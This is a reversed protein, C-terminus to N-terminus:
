IFMDVKAPIKYDFGHLGKVAHINELKRLLYPVISKFDDILLVIGDKGNLNEKRLPVQNFLKEPYDIGFLICAIEKEGFLCFIFFLTPNDMGAPYIFEVQHVNSMRPDPPCGAMESVTKKTTARIFEVLEEM